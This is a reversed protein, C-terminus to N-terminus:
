GIEARQRVTQILLAKTLANVADDVAKAEHDDMTELFRLELTDGIQKRAIRNLAWFRPHEMDKATLKM